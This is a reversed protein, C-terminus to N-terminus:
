RLVYNYILVNSFYFVILDNELLEKLFFIKCYLNVKRFNTQTIKDDINRLFYIMKGRSIPPFNTACTLLGATNM